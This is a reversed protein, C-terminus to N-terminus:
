EKNKFVILRQGLYNIGTYLCEGTLMAVNDKFDVSHSNFLCYILYKAGIYAILYCVVLLVFFQFIQSFSKESNKFTFYKNLFYSCIGGIIYNCISSFWYNCHAFNYLLFMSGTGVLTNIAGVILFKLLKIDILKEKMKSM